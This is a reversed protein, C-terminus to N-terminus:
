IPWTESLCSITLIATRHSTLGLRWGILVFRHWIYQTQVLWAKLSGSESIKAHPRSFFHMLDERGQFVYYIYLSPIMSSFIPQSSRLWWLSSRLSNNLWFYFQLLKGVERCQGLWSYSHLIRRESFPIEMARFVVCVNKIGRSVYVWAYLDVTGKDSWAWLQEWMM